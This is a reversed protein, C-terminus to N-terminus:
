KCTPNVDNSGIVGKQLKGPPGQTRKVITESPIHTQSRRQLSVSPTRVQKATRVQRSLTGQSILGKAGSQPPVQVPPPVRRMMIGVEDRQMHTLVSALWEYLDMMVVLELSGKFQRIGDRSALQHDPSHLLQQQRGYSMFEAIFEPSVKSMKMELSDAVAPRLTLPCVGAGASSANNLTAKDVGSGRSFVDPSIFPQAVLRVVPDRLPPWAQDSVLHMAYGSIRAMKAWLYCDSRCPVEAGSSPRRKPSFLSILESLSPATLSNCCLQFVARLLIASVDFLWTPYSTTTARVLAQRFAEDDYNWLKLFAHRVRRFTAPESAATTSQKFPLIRLPSAPGAAEDYSLTVPREFPEETHLMRLCAEEHAQHNAMHADLLLRQQVEAKHAVDGQAASGVEKKPAKSPEAARLVKKRPMLSDKSSKPEMTSNVQSRAKLEALPRRITDAVDEMRPTAAEPPCAPPLNGTKVEEVENQQLGLLQILAEASLPCHQGEKIPHTEPSGTGQHLLVYLSNYLIFRMRYQAAQLLARNCRRVLLLRSLSLFGCIKSVIRPNEWVSNSPSPEHLTSCLQKAASLKATFDLAKNAAANSWRPTTAGKPGKREGDVGHVVERRREEPMDGDPLDREKGRCSADQDSQPASEEAMTVCDKDMPSNADISTPLDPPFSDGLGDSAFPHASTRLINNDKKYTRDSANGAASPTSAQVVAKQHGCALYTACASCLSAAQEISLHNLRAHTQSDLLASGDGHFAEDLARGCRSCKSKAYASGFNNIETEDGKRCSDGSLPQFRGDWIGWSDCCPCCCCPRGALQLGKREAARLRCCRCGCTAGGYGDWGDATYSGPNNLHSSKPLALGQTRTCGPSPSRLKRGIRQLPRNSTSVGYARMWSPLSLIDTKPTFYFADVGMESSALGLNSGCANAVTSRLPLEAAGKGAPKCSRSRKSISRKQSGRIGPQKRFYHLERPSFRVGLRRLNEEDDATALAADLKPNASLTGAATFNRIMTKQGGNTAKPESPARLSKRFGWTECSMQSSPKGAAVAPTYDAQQRKSQTFGQREVQQPFQQTLDKESVNAQLEPWVIKPRGFHSTDLDRNRHQSPLGAPLCTTSIQQSQPPSRCLPINEGPEPHLAPPLTSPVTGYAYNLSASQQSCERQIPRFPWEHLSHLLPSSAEAAYLPLVHRRQRTQAWCEGSKQGGSPMGAAPLSSPSIRALHHNVARSAEHDTPREDASTAVLRPRRTFYTLGEHPRSDFTYPSIECSEKLLDEVATREVYPIPQQLCQQHRLIQQQRDRQQRLLENRRRSVAIAMSSAQQHEMSVNHSDQPRWSSCDHYPSVGCVDVNDGQNAHDSLAARYTRREIPKQPPPPPLPRDQPVAFPMLRSLRLVENRVQQEQQKLIRQQSMLAALECQGWNNPM